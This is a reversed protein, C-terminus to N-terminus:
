SSISSPSSSPSFLFFMINFTRWVSTNASPTDHVGDREDHDGLSCLAGVLEFDESEPSNKRSRAALSGDVLLLLLDLAFKRAELTESRGDETKESSAAAGVMAKIWNVSPGTSHLPTISVGVLISM